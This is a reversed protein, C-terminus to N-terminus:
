KKGVHIAVVKESEIPEGSRTAPKYLWNRAAALLRADYRADIPTEMTAAKVKGDVGIVIRIAGSVNRPAAGSPLVYAPVDQRITVAPLIVPPRPPVIPAAPSDAAAPPSGGTRGRAAGGQTTTSGGSSTEANAPPSGAPTGPGSFVPATTVAPRAPAGAPAATKLIDLYSASLVQLDTAEAAGEMVPDRSLALVEEFGKRAQEYRKAQFEDRAEAFLRKVVAPMVRRRTQTFLTVLRPPLESESVTYSPAVNVLAELSREAEPLKGLALYCLARYQHAEAGDGNGLVELAEAYSAEAYLAKAKVLADVTQASAPRGPVALLAACMWLAACTFTTRM